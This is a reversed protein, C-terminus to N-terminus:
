PVRAGAVAFLEAALDDGLELRVQARTLAGAVLLDVVDDRWSRLRAGETALRLERVAAVDGARAAKGIAAAIREANTRGRKDTAALWARYADSLARPRGGPNGSQGPQFRRGYSNGAEFPKGRARCKGKSPSM